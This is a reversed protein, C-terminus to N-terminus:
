SAEESPALTLFLMHVHLSFNEGDKPKAMDIDGDYAPTSVLTDLFRVRRKPTNYVQEIDQGITQIDDKFRVSVNKRQLFM